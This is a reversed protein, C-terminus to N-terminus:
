LKQFILLEKDPRNSFLKIPIIKELKMKKYNKFITKEHYYQTIQSTSKKYLEGVSKFLTFDSCLTESNEDFRASIFLERNEDFFRADGDAVDAFGHFTNIDAIFVGNPKLLKAVCDLFDFLKKPPIYNLVDFVATACEYQENEIDCINVARATIGNKIASDVMVPSLDVGVADFGNQKLLKAFSGSGCGIDIVTKPQLKKLEKLHTEYLKQIQEDFPILDEIQAYFDLNDL